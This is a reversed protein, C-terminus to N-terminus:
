SLIEKQELRKITNELELFTSGDNGSFGLFKLADDIRKKMELDEPDDSLIINSYCSKQKKLFTNLLDLYKSKEEVNITPINFTEEIIELFTKNGLCIFYETTKVDKNNSIVFDKITELLQKIENIDSQLQLFDSM